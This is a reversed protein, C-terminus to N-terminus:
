IEIGKELIPIFQSIETEDLPNFKDPTWLLGRDYLEDGPNNPIVHFHIHDVKTGNTGEPVNPRSKQFVDVGQAIEALMVLRLREIEDLTALKEQSTLSDPPAVHRKPSILVHGKTLRPKSLFSKIIDDEYITRHRIDESPICFPCQEPRTM